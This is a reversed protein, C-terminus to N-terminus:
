LDSRAKLGQEPNADTTDDTGINQFVDAIPQTIAKGEPPRVLVRARGRDAHLLVDTTTDDTTDRLTVRVTAREPGIETLSWDELEYDGQTVNVPDWASATDNWERVNIEGAARDFRLRLRGTDVVPDGDFQYGTHYAHTWVNVEDGSATTAFKARDRDDYVRVDTPGDSEFPLRYILTPNDITTASPDFFAVDGYQSSETRAVTAPEPGAPQSYWRPRTAAAPVAIEANSGTALPTDVDEINTAVTRVSDEYTGRKTLRADYEYADDRGEQAATVDISEVEYYGRRRGLEDDPDYLRLATFTSESLSDLEDAIKRSLTPGYQIRGRKRYDVNETAVNEVAVGGEELLGAQEIASGIQGRATDTTDTPLPTLGLRTM